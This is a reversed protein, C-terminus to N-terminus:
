DSGHNLCASLSLLIKGSDDKADTLHRPRSGDLYDKPYVSLRGATCAGAKKKIRALKPLLLDFAGFIFIEELGGTEAKILSMKKESSFPIEDLVKVREDFPFPTLTRLTANKDSSLKGYTGLLQEADTRNCRDDLLTIQNVALKNQTLTGTKDM